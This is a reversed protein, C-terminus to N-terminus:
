VVADRGGGDGPLVIIQETSIQLLTAAAQLLQEQVCAQKAGDAVILVGRIEPYTEEVLLAGGQGSTQVVTRNEQQETKQQQTEGNTETTDRETRQVDCAYEKRGFSEVTIQVTVKGADQVQMLTQALQQELQIVSNSSSVSTVGSQSIKNEALPEAPKEMRGGALLLLVGLLALLGLRIMTQKQKQNMESWQM